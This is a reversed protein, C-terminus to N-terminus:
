QGFVFLQVHVTELSQNQHHRWRQQVVSTSISGFSDGSWRSYDGGVRRRAMWWVVIVVDASAFCSAWSVTSTTVKLTM